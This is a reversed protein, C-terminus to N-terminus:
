VIYLPPRQPIRSFRKKFPIGPEIHLFYYHLELQL